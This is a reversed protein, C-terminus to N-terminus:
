KGMGEVGKAFEECSTCFGFTHAANYEWCEQAFGPSSTGCGDSLLVCDYGKSFADTLTGGVCQDTNVGAFLLTTIGEQELFQQLPTTDGWLASMRNKHVWVDPRQPLTKGQDFLARLPPHLDTNWEGRVLLRGADVQEGTQLTIPGMARGIGKYVGNARLKGHKDVGVAGAGAGAGDTEREREVEGGALVGEGEGEGGDDAVSWFGFARKVGPPLEGVEEECLGWNVWVVRVGARRAAPM